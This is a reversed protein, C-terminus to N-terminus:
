LEYEYREQQIGRQWNEMQICLTANKEYWDELTLRKNTKTGSLPSMSCWLQIQATAHCRTLLKTQPTIHLKNGWLYFSSQCEFSDGGNVTRHPEAAVKQVNLREGGCIHFSVKNYNTMCWKHPLKYSQSNCKTYSQLKIHFLFLFYIKNQKPNHLNWDNAPEKFHCQSSRHWLFTVFFTM